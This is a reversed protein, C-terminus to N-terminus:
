ISEVWECFEQPYIQQYSKKSRADYYQLFKKFDQQLARNSFNHHPQADSILYMATRHVMSAEKDSLLSQNSQLWQYIQNHLHQRMSLPLLLVSQFEPHKIVTTYFYSVKNPYKRKLELCLNLKDVLGWVNLVSVTSQLSLFNKTHNSTCWQDVNQLFLNFDLGQRAYEAIDGVADLSAAIRAAAVNSTIDILKQLLSSKVSLNSNIDFRYQEIPKFQEVFNWFNPSMLPEGGSVKLVKIKDRILLWWNMWAEYYQSKTSGPAIHIKSYLQRYDTDLNLPNQAIRAAWSSSLGSDCYSCSLNCYNDFTVEVFEPVHNPDVQLTPVQDIWEASKLIRDSVVDANIDEMQWCMNCEQPRHGDLMLQQQSMKHPTNHLAHPTSLSELPIEHPMPHHCSSSTGHNLYLYLENWKAACFFKSRSELAAYVPFIKRSTMTTLASQSLSTISLFKKSDKGM